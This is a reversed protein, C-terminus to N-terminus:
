TLTLSRIDKFDLVFLCQCLSYIFLIIFLSESESSARAPSAPSDPRCHSFFCNEPNASSTFCFNSFNSMRAPCGCGSVCVSMYGSLIDQCLRSFCFFKCIESMGRFGSAMEVGGNLNIQGLKSKWLGFDFGILLYRLYIWPAWVGEGVSGCLWVAM